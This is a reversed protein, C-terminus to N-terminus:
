ETDDEDGTGPTAQTSPAASSAPATPTANGSVENPVLGDGGAVSDYEAAHETRAVVPVEITLDGSKSFTYTLKVYAGPEAGETVVFATSAGGITILVDSPLKVASKPARVTLSEGDAGTVAVSTITEDADTTNLLAASLTASGDENGVLLTNQSEIDGRANAGVAPQYVQNTQAGFGTGCASLALGAVLALSAASLRRRRVSSM